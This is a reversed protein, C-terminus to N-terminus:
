LHWIFKRVSLLTLKFRMDTLCYMSFRVLLACYHTMYACCWVLTQLPDHIHFCRYASYAFVDLALVYISSNHYMYTSVNGFCLLEPVLLYFVNDGCTSISEPILLTWFMAFDCFCTHLSRSVLLDVNLFLIWIQIHRQSWNHVRSVLLDVNLFLIWIQIHRQSWTHVFQLVLRM